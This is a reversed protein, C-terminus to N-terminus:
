PDGTARWRHGHRHHADSVDLRDHVLREHEHWHSHPEGAPVDPSDPHRHHADHVHRHEHATRAHAHEHGHRETIPLATGAAMVAFAVGDYSVAGLALAGGIVAVSPWAVGRGLAIALNTGAAGLAKIRVVVVPDRASLRQTLNNDLAWAM